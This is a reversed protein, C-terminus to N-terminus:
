NVELVVYGSQLGFGCLAMYVREGSSFKGMNEYLPGFPGSSFSDGSKSIMVEDGAFRNLQGIRRILKPSIQTPLFYNKRQGRPFKSLAKGMVINLQSEFVKESASAIRLPSLLDITESQGSLNDSTFSAELVSLIGKRKTGIVVAAVSDSFRAMSPTLSSYDIFVSPFNSYVLLIYEPLSSEKWSNLVSLHMCASASGALLDYARIKLNMKGAVRQALAPITQFPTSSEGIVLGIESLEIGANEVAQSVARAAVDLDSETLNDFAAKLSSNRTSRIYEPNLLSFREISGSEQQFYDKLFNPNLELVLNDDIKNEPHAYGLGLIQLV